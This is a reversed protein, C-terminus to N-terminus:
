NRSAAKKKKKAEEREVARMYAEMKRDNNRKMKMYYDYQIADNTGYAKMGQATYYADKATYILQAMYPKFVIGGVIIVLLAVGVKIAMAIRAEAEAKEHWETWTLGAAAAAEEEKARQEEQAKKEAAAKEAKEAAEKEAREAAVREAKEKDAAAKLKAAKAAAAVAKETAERRNRCMTERKSNEGLQEPSLWSKIRYQQELQLKVNASDLASTFRVANQKNGKLNGEISYINKFHAKWLQLFHDNGPKAEDNVYGLSYEFETLMKNKHELMQAFSAMIHNSEYARQHLNGAFLFTELRENRGLSEVFYEAVENSIKNLNMNLKRLVSNHELADAIPKVQGEGWKSAGENLNNNSLDLEEINCLARPHKQGTGDAGRSLPSEELNGKGLAAGILSVLKNSSTSDDLELEGGSGLNCNSMSVKRLSPLYFLKEVIPVFGESGLGTNNSLDLSQLLPARELAEAIYRGGLPGLHSNGQMATLLTRFSQCSLDLIKVNKTAAMEAIAKAGEDEIMNKGIQFVDIDNPLCAFASALDIAHQAGIDCERLNIIKLQLNLKSSIRTGDALSKVAEDGLTTSELDLETCDEPIKAPISYDPLIWNSGKDFIDSGVCVRAHVVPMVLTAILGLVAMAQSIRNTM